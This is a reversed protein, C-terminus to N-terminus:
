DGDIRYRVLVTKDLADLEIHIDSARRSFADSIIKNVLSIIASDSEQAQEEDPIESAGEIISIKGM